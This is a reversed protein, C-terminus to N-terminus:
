IVGDGWKKRIEAKYKDFQEIRRATEAIIAMFLVIFLFFLTAVVLLPNPFGLTENMFYDYKLLLLLVCTALGVSSIVASTAILIYYSYRDRSGNKFAEIQQYAALDQEKTRHTKLLKRKELYAVVRPTLLNTAIGLPVVLLLSLVGLWLGIDVNGGKSGSM